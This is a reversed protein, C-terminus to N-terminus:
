TSYSYGSLGSKVKKTYEAVVTSLETITSDSIPDCPLDEMLRELWSRLEEAKANATFFRLRYDSPLLVFAPDVYSWEDPESEEDSAHYQLYEFPSQKPVTPKRGDYPKNQVISDEAIPFKGRLVVNGDFDLLDKLDLATMGEKEGSYGSSFKATLTSLFLCVRERDCRERLWGAKLQYCFKLRTHVAECHRGDALSPTEFDHAKDTLKKATNMYKSGTNLIFYILQLRVSAERISRAERIYLLSSVTDADVDSFTVLKSVLYIALQIRAASNLIGDGYTHILISSIM